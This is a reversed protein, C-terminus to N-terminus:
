DDDRRLHQGSVVSFPANTVSQLESPCEGDIARIAFKALDVGAGRVDEEVVHIQPNMRQVMSTAQKTAIFVDRGVILGARRVASAATISSVASSTVIADPPSASQLLDFIVNEQEDVSDEVTVEDLARGTLGTALLGETFGDRTLHSYTMSLSAAVLAVNTAGWQKARHVADYAFRHNDFDHYAHQFPLQTRGHTAFPINHEHLYAVRRDKPETRSLIVADASNTEVVYRVPDLPDDGTSYPTLVLHYNTDRLGRSVGMVLQSAFGMVDEDINLILSVVQTKGTRLRVGARSPRYGIQDAVLRVRKKTDESIDPADKLARSVATVSLDTMFAITKLTPPRGEALAEISGGGAAVLQKRKVM